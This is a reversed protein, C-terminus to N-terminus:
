LCFELSNNFSMYEIREFQEIMVQSIIAEPMCFYTTIAGHVAESQLEEFSPSLLRYFQWESDFAAFSNNSFFSIILTLILIKYKM